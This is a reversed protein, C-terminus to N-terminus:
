NKESTFPADVRFTVDYFHMVFYSIHVVKTGFFFLANAWHQKLTPGGDAVWAWCKFFMPDVERIQYPLAAQSFHM